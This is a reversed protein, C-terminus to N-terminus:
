DIRWVTALLFKRFCFDSWALYRDSFAKMDGRQEQSLAWIRVCGISSGLSQGLPSRWGWQKSWGSAWHRLWVADRRTGLSGHMEGVWVQTQTRNEAQLMKIRGGFSPWASKVLVKPKLYFTLEELFSYYEETINKLLLQTDRGLLCHLQRYHTQLESPLSSDTKFVPMDM